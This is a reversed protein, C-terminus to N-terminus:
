RQDPNGDYLEFTENMTIDSIELDPSNKVFEFQGTGSFAKTFGEDYGGSGSAMLRASFSLEGEFSFTREPVKVRIDKTEVHISINELGYNAPNTEIEVDMEWPYVCLKGEIIERMRNIEM